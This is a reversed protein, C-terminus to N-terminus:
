PPDPSFADCAGPSGPPSPCLADCPSTGPRPCAGSCPGDRSCPCLGDYSTAEPGDCAVNSCGASICSSAPCGNGPCPLRCSWAGRRRDASPPGGVSMGTWGSTFGSSPFRLVEYSSAAISSPRSFLDRELRTTAGEGTWLSNSSSVADLLAPGDAERCASGEAVGPGLLVGAREGRGDVLRVGFAAAEWVGRM